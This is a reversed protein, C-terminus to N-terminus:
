FNENEEERNAEGVGERCMGSCVNNWTDWFGLFELFLRVKGCGAAGDGCGAAGQRVMACGAAGQWVRGCGAAGHRVRRCRGCGAASASCGAAGQRM